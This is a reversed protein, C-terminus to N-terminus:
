IIGGEDGIKESVNSYFLMMVKHHLERYTDTGFIDQRRRPRELNVEIEEKIKKNDMFLIRDSLLIAEDIDHTVMVITKKQDQDELLELLMDQLDARNKADVAGFPEDMLMIEPGMALTRAIAVRQQMGGSLQFPYKNEFGELGVAELFEEAKKNYEKKSLDGNVQKIGFSVNKKATMWPFLSYHQFVVGRNKGTGVSEEGDIYIKGQTPQRLGSLISLTTSKGCGSSGIISIFEGEKVSFNVDELASYRENGEDNYELYVNELKIKDM